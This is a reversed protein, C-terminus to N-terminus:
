SRWCNSQQLDKPLGRANRAIKCLWLFSTFVLNVIHLWYYSYFSITLLSNTPFCWPNPSWAALVPLKTKKCIMRLSSSWQTSIQQFHWNADRNQTLLLHFMQVDFVKTLGLMGQISLPPRKPVLLSRRLCRLNHLNHLHHSHDWLLM